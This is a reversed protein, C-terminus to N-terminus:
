EGQAVGQGELYSLPPYKPPHEASTCTPLVRMRYTPTANFFFPLSFRDEGEEGSFLAYHRTAPWTDNTIQALLEGFNVVFAEPRHPARMWGGGPARVVLGPGSTALITFFSTDVHPNIGYEGPPTPAYRSLRVRFLPSEFAEDFWSPRLGLAVAYVPLMRRALAEIAACYAEVAARFGPLEDEGPWPMKALTVDRPGSEQKVVFAANMNPKERAPLKWNGEALYGCGTRVEGAAPPTDMALKLKAAEPLAHFRRAM